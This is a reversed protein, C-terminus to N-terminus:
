ANQSFPLTAGYHFLCWEFAEILESHEFAQHRLLRDPLCPCLDCHFSAVTQIVKGDVQLVSGQRQELASPSTALTCPQLQHFTHFPQNVGM